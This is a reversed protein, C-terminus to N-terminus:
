VLYRKRSKIWQAVALLFSLIPPGILPVLMLWIPTDLFYLHIIMLLLSLSVCVSAFRPDLQVGFYGTRCNLLKKKM